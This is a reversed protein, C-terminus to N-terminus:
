CSINLWCELLMSVFSSQQYIVLFVVATGSRDYECEHCIITQFLLIGVLFLHLVISHLMVLMM